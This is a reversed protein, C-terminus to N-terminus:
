HVDSRFISWNTVKRTDKGYIIFDQDSINESVPKIMAGPLDRDLIRDINFAKSLFKLFLINPGKFEHTMFTSTEDRGRTFLFVMVGNLYLQNKIIYIMSELHNKQTYGYEMVMYYHLDRISKFSLNHQELAMYGVLEDNYSCYIFITDHPSKSFRWKYFDKNRINTIKDGSTYSEMLRSIKETRLESTIDIQINDKYYTLFSGKTELKSIPSKKFMKFPSFYYLKKRQGIPKYGAKQLAGTAAKNPSLSLILKIDKKDSIDQLSFNSLETFIGKRRYDPHITGNTPIIITFCRNNVKYRQPIFGRFGVIKKDDLALYNLPENSFPNNEYVWEFLIKREEYNVGSESIYKSM